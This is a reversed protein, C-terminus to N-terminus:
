NILENTIVHDGTERKMREIWNSIPEKSKPFIGNAIQARQRYEPVSKIRELERDLSSPDNSNLGYYYNSPSETKTMKNFHVDTRLESDSFNFASTEFLNYKCTKM